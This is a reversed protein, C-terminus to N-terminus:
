RQVMTAMAYGHLVEVCDTFKVIWTPFSSYDALENVQFPVLKVLPLSNKHQFNMEKKLSFDLIESDNWQFELVVELQMIKKKLTSLM